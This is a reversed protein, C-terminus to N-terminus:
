IIQIKYWEVDRLRWFANTKNVVNFLSCSQNITCDGLFRLLTLTTYYHLGQFFVTTLELEGFHNSLLCM